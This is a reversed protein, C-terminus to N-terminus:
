APEAILVMLKATGSTLVDSTWVGIGITAGASLPMAMRDAIDTIPMERPFGSPAGGGGVDLVQLFTDQGDRVGEWSMEAAGAGGWGSLSIFASYVIYCDNEVTHVTSYDDNVFSDDFAFPFELLTMTQEGGFGFLQQTHFDRDTSM